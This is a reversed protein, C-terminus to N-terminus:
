DHTGRLYHRAKETKGLLEALRTLARYQATKVANESKGLIEAVERHSKNEVFRLLLLTQEDDSLRALAERLTDMEIRAELREEPQPEDDALMDSLPSVERRGRRRYFDAVRAAAIRYLWAEFPAGTPQYGPLAEVMRLFVEATLDEADGEAPVRYMIYRYIAPSFEQYLTSIAGADGQRAQQILADLNRQSMM